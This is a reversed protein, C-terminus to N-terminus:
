RKLAAKKRHLRRPVRETLGRALPRRVRCYPSLRSLPFTSKAPKVLAVNMKLTLRKIEREEDLPTM